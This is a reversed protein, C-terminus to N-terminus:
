HTGKAQRVYQRAVIDELTEEEYPMASGGGADGADAVRGGLEAETADSQWVKRAKNIEATVPDAGRSFKPEGTGSSKAINPQNSDFQAAENRDM